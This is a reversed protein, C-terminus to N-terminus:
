AAIAQKVFRRFEAEDFPMCGTIRLAQAWDLDNMTTPRAQRVVHNQLEELATRENWEPEYYGTLEGTMSTGKLPHRLCDCPSQGAKHCCRINLGHYNAGREAPFFDSAKRGYHAILLAAAHKSRKKLVRLNM